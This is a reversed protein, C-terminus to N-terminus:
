TENRDLRQLLAGEQELLALHQFHEEQQYYYASSRVRAFVQPFKFLLVQPTLINILRQTAHGGVYVERTECM